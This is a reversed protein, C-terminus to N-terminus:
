ASLDQSVREGTEVNLGILRVFLVKPIPNFRQAQTSIYVKEAFCQQNNIVTLFREVGDECNELRFEGPVLSGFPGDVDSAGAFVSDPMAVMKAIVVGEAAARKDDISLGFGTKEFVSMEIRDSLVGKKRRKKVFDPANDYWYYDLPDNTDFVSAAAGASLQNSDRSKSSTSRVSGGTDGKRRARYIVANHNTSRTCIMVVGRLGNHAQQAAIYNDIYPDAVEETPLEAAGPQGPEDKSFKLGGGENLEVRQARQVAHDPHWHWNKLAASPGAQEDPQESVSSPEEQISAPPSRDSIANVPPLEKQADDSPRELPLEVKEINKPRSGCGCMGSRAPGRERRRRTLTSPKDRPTVYLDSDATRYGSATTENSSQPVLGTRYVPRRPLAAPLKPSALPTQQIAQSAEALEQERLQWKQQMPLRRVTGSAAASIQPQAGSHRVM